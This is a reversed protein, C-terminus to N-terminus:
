EKLVITMNPERDGMVWPNYDDNLFDRFHEQLRQVISRETTGCLVVVTKRKKPELEVLQGILRTFETKGSLNHKLEFFVEDDGWFRKRKLYLDVLAGAEPYDKRIVCDAAQQQLFAFLSEQCERESTLNGPHWQEMLQRVTLVVGNFFIGVGNLASM